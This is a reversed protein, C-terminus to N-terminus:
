AAQAAAARNAARASRAKELAAVRVAHTAAPDSSPARGRKPQNRLMAVAMEIGKAVEADGVSRLFAAQSEMKKITSLYVRM